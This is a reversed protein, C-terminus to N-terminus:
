LDLGSFFEVWVYYLVVLERSFVIRFRNEEHDALLLGVEQGLVCAPEVPEAVELGKFTEKVQFFFFLVYNVLVFVGCLM